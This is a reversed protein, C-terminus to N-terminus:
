IKVAKGSKGSVFCADLIKQVEAGRVFDPDVPKGRLIGAAFREYNSPTPACEVEQWSANKLGKGACIRYQSVSRDSDIEVSGKTGSIKLHLRNPHGAIWRSTHITGLAGNAFEVNLVASDNADLIYEGMRNGPAKPFTKLRCFVERLPGVPFTAFDVIHVGVDGLAGQSGHASSLRWLWAPTTKWDGWVDCNLWCQSYSAEVHLVEGIKGKQVVDAVGQLASWNRYSFNVMHVVGAKNAAAVMKRAESYNVALPKECLVHKGAKLCQLSIAAHFRDPVVVTVADVELNKLMEGVDSFSQPIEHRQCFEKAKAPDIDCGGVVECGPIKKFESAHVNAMGGTGVIALRM